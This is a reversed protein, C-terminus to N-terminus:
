SLSYECERSFVCECVWDDETLEISTVSEGHYSASHPWPPRPQKWNSIIVSAKDCCQSLCLLFSPLQLFLSLFVFCRHVHKGAVTLTWSNTQFTIDMSHYVCRIHSMTKQRVKSYCLAQSSWLVIIVLCILCRNVTWIHKWGKRFTSFNHITTSLETESFSM